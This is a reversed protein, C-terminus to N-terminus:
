WSCRATRGQRRIPLRRPQLPTLLRRPHRALRPPGAWAPRSGPMRGPHLRAQLSARRLRRASLRRRQWCYGQPTGSAPRADQATPARGTLPDAQPVPIRMAPRKLVRRPAVSATSQGTGRRPGARPHQGARSRRLWWRSGSPCSTRHEGTRLGPALTHAQVSPCERKWARWRRFAGRAQPSDLHGPPVQVRPRLAQPDGVAERFLTIATAVATSGRTPPRQLADVQSPRFSTGASASTSLCDPRRDPTGGRGSRFSRSWHEGSLTRGGDAVLRARCPRKSRPALLRPCRRSGTWRIAGTTPSALPGPYPRSM